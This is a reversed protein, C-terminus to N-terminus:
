EKGKSIWGPPPIFRFLVVTHHRVRCLMAETNATSCPYLLSSWPWSSLSALAPLLLYVNRGAYFLRPTVQSATLSFYCVVDFSCTARLLKIERIKSSLTKWLPYYKSDAVCCYSKIDVDATHDKTRKGSCYEM